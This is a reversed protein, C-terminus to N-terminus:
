KSDEMAADISERKWCGIEDILWDLRATDEKAENLKRELQRAFDIHVYDHLTPKGGIAICAWTTDPATNTRPTDDSMTRRAGIQANVM